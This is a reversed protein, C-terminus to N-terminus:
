LRTSMTGPAPWRHRKSTTRSRSTCSGGSGGSPLSGVITYGEFKGSTGHSRRPEDATPAAALVAPLRRELGETLGHLMFLRAPHGVVVRYLCVGATGLESQLARGFHGTASWRAIIISGLILPIYVLSLVLAGAFRVTDSLMGWVFRALHKVFWAIGKFLPVIFWVILVVGIVIAAVLAFPVLLMLVPNM